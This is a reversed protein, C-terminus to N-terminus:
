LKIELHFVSPMTYVVLSVKEGVPIDNGKEPKFHTVEPIAKIWRMRSEWLPPKNKSSTNISALRHISSYNIKRSEERSDQSNPYTEVEIWEWKKFQLDQGLLRFPVPYLRRMEQNETIGAICSTEVHKASPIPYTKALILIKEVKSSPNTLM